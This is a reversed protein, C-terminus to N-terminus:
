MISRENCEVKEIIEFDDDFAECIVDAWVIEGPKGIDTQHRDPISRAAIGQLDDDSLEYGDPIRIVITVIGQLTIQKTRPLHQKGTPIINRM